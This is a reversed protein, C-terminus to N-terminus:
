QIVIQNNKFMLNDFNQINNNFNLVNISQSFILFIDFNSKQTTILISYVHFFFRSEQYVRIFLILFAFLLIEDFINVQLENDCFNKSFFNM